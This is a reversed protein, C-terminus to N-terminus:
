ESKKGRKSKKMLKKLRKLQKKTLINKLDFKFKASSVKAAIMTELNDDFLQSWASQDFSEATILARQAAKAAAKDAQYTAVEAEHSSILATIATTQEDSLNLKQMKKNLKELRSPREPRNAILEDLEAKQEDTLVQYVSHKANAEILRLQKSAITQTTVAANVANEDWIEAKMLAKFAEKVAKREERYIKKEERSNQRITKIQEKQADSLSLQSFIEQSKKHGSKQALTIPAFTILSVITLTALLKQM